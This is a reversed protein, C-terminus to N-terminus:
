LTKGPMRFASKGTPPVAVAQASAVATNDLLSAFQNLLSVLKPVRRSYSRKTDDALVALNNIVVQLEQPLAYVTTGIALAVAVKPDTEDVQTKPLLGARQLVYGVIDGAAGYRYVTVGQNGFFPRRTRNLLESALIRAQAAILNQKDQRTMLIEQQVHRKYRIAQQMRILEFDTRFKQFLTRLEQVLKAENSGSRRLNEIMSEMDTIRAAQRQSREIAENRDTKVQNLEFKLSDIEDNLGSLQAAVGGKEKLIDNYDRCLNNYRAAMDRLVYECRIAEGIVSWTNYWASELSIGNEDNLKSLVSLVGRSLGEIYEGQKKIVEMLRDHANNKLKSQLDNLRRKTEALEDTLVQNANELEKQRWPKYINYYDKDPAM